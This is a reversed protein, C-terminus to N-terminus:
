TPHYPTPPQPINLGLGLDGENGMPGSCPAMCAICIGPDRGCFGEMTFLDEIFSILDCFWSHWFSVLFCAACLGPAQHFPAACGGALCGYPDDEYLDVVHAVYFLLCLTSAQYARCESISGHVSSIGGPPLRVQPPLQQQSGGHGISGQALAAAAVLGPSPPLTRHYPKRYDIAIAALVRRMGWIAWRDGVTLRDM